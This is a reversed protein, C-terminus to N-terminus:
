ALNSHRLKIELDKVSLLIAIFVFPKNSALFEREDLMFKLISRLQDADAISL